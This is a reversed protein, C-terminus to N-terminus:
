DSAGSFTVPKSPAAAPAPAEAVPAPAEVTVASTAGNINPLGIKKACASLALVLMALALSRNM